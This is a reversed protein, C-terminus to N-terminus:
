RVPIVLFGSVRSQLTQLVTFNNYYLSAPDAGLSPEYNKTLSWIKRLSNVRARRPQYANHHLMPHAPHSTVDNGRLPLPSSQHAGSQPCTCKALAPVPLEHGPEMREVMGPRRRRMSAESAQINTGLVFDCIVM